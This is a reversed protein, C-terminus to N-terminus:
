THHVVELKSDQKGLRIENLLEEVRELLGEINDMKLASIAIANYRHCFNEVTEKDVMDSKNFVLLRPIESLKLELLIGEVTRMQEEFAPNSIDVIHILLDADRLEELTSRFSDLLDSPLNSIFGVTDSIIAEQHSQRVMPFRLRRSTPDLTAFLKDEVLVHSETLANLLTSKGANTYGIISIIPMDTKVRKSKRVIRESALTRLEKELHAIRDKVRRRGIELKTEGPGKVGIGGRIRSLADDKVSLRPLIYKLKALEVKVKGDRSFARKGFIDLILQTRDTIHMETFNAIERLQTPTLEENFIILDAGLQLSKIILERLQGEGMLYKANFQRPRVIVADIVDIDDTRALEKLEKLFREATERGVTTVSVLIARDKEKITRVRQSRYMEDEVMGIISLADLQFHSLYAPPLLEWMKGEPNESLLHATYIRGPLGDEKVEIASMLDLRLMALDTLDDKTLPEDKLHTHLCRLGRLRGMGIRYESLDPIVIESHSGVIVFDIKGKRDVLIGIQRNIESSLETLYRALEHTIVDHPPIKRRYINEIRKIDSPKLGTINGFLKM